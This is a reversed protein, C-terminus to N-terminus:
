AEGWILKDMFLPIRLKEYVECVINKFVFVIPTNKM